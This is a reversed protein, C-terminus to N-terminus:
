RDKTMEEWLPLKGSPEFGEDGRVFVRTERGNTIILYRVNLVMDYRLLQEAVDAGLPVEPRKCEVAAVPEANRGYVVIDARWTKGSRIGSGLSSVRASGYTLQVESMMMHRPVKMEEMLVSIFWQRVREEPTLPVERRRLPDWIATGEGMDEIIFIM